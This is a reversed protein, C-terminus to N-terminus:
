SGYLNKTIKFFDNVRSAQYDRAFCVYCSGKTIYVRTIVFLNEQTGQIVLQIKGAKCGFTDFTEREIFIQASLFSTFLIRAIRRKAQRKEGEWPRNRKTVLRERKASAGLFIRAM